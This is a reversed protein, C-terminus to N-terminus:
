HIRETPCPISVRCLEKPWSFIHAHIHPHAYIKSILIKDDLKANIQIHEHASTMFDHYLISTFAGNWFQTQIRYATKHIIIWMNYIKLQLTFQWMWWAHPRENILLLYFDSILECVCACVNVSASLNQARSKASSCQTHPLSATLCQYIIPHIRTTHLHDHIRAPECNECLFGWKREHEMHIFIYKRCTSAHMCSHTNTHKTTRQLLIQTCHVSNHRCVCVCVITAKWDYPNKCTGLSM